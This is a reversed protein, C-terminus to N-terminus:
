TKWEIAYMVIIDILHLMAGVIFAALLLVKAVLLAPKKTRNYVLLVACIVIVLVCLLAETFNQVDQPIIMDTAADNGM